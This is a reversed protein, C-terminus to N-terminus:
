GGPAAFRTLVRPAHDGAAVELSVRAAEVITDEDASGEVGVVFVEAIAGDRLYPLANLLYALGATHDYRPAAAQAAQDAGLVVVEGPRGFGEVRDVFVVREAGEVFRLLDL